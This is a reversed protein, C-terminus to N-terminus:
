PLFWCLGHYSPDSWRAFKGAKKNKNLFRNTDKIYSRVKQALPQLHHDLFSFIETYCGCNSIVPRGAVNHLCKHIKTLQSFRAFKYSFTM